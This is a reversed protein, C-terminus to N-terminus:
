NSGMPIAYLIQVGFSNGKTKKDGDYSTIVKDFSDYFNYKSIGLDYYGLIKIGSEEKKVPIFFGSEARLSFNYGLFINMNDGTNEILTDAPVPYGSNEYKVSGSFNSLLFQGGLFFCPVLYQDLGAHLNFIGQKLKISQLKDESFASNFGRSYSGGFIGETNNNRVSFAFEAGYTNAILIDPLNTSRTFYNIYTDLEKRTHNGYIVGVTLLKTQATVGSTLLFILIPFLTNKMNLPSPIKLFFTYILSKRSYFDFKLLLFLLKNVHLQLLKILGL